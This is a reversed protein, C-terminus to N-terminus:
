YERAPYVQPSPYDSTKVGLIIWESDLPSIFYIYIYIYYLRYLYLFYSIYFIYIIYIYIYLIFFLPTIVSPFYFPEVEVTVPGAMSELALPISKLMSM